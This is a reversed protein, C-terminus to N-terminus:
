VVLWKEAQPASFPIVRVLLLCKPRSVKRRQPCVKRRQADTAHRSDLAVGRAPQGCEAAPAAALAAALAAGQAHNAGCSAARLRPQPAARSLAAAVDGVSEYVSGRPCLRSPKLKPLPALAAPMGRPSRSSGARVPFTEDRCRPTHQLLILLRHCTAIESPPLSFSRPRKLSSTNVAAARRLMATPENSM